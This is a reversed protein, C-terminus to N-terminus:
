RGNAHDPQSRSQSERPATRAHTRRRSIIMIVSVIVTLAVLGGATAIIILTRPSVKPSELNTYVPNTRSTRNIGIAPLFDDHGSIRVYVGPYQADACEVGISVVGM